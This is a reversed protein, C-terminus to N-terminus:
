LGTYDRGDVIDILAASVKLCLFFPPLVAPL